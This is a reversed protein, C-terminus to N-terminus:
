LKKLRAMTKRKTRPLRKAPGKKTTSPSHTSPHPSAYDPEQAGFLMPEFDQSSISTAGHRRANSAVERDSSVVVARQKENRVLRLIVDDAPEDKPSFLVRIGSFYSTDTSTSGNIWGDFVVTIRHPKQRRYESLLRLLAERSQELDETALQHLSLSAHILNYGDVILHLPM